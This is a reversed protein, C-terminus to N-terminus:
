RRPSGTRRRMPEERKSCRSCCPWSARAGSWPLRVWPSPRWCSSVRSCRSPTWSPSCRPSDPSCERPGRRERGFAESVIAVSRGMAVGLLDLFCRQLDGFLRYFTVRSVGARAVVDTITSGQYSREAAIELMAQLIRGRQMQEVHERSPRGVGALLAADGVPPGSAAGLEVGSSSM